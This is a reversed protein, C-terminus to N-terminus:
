QQGTIGLCWLIYRDYLEWRETLGQVPEFFMDLFDAFGNDMGRDVGM